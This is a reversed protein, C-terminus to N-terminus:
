PEKKQPPGARPDPLAPLATLSRRAAASFRGTPFRRLYETLDARAGAPDGGQARCSSSGYLGRELLEGQVQGIAATFDTLAEACRGAEARLEGRTVRLEMGRPTDDALPRQDLATLAERRKGVGLLANIRLLEAEPQLLGHPFQQRYSDLLTLAGAPDHAQRLRAMAAGLAQSEKLIAEESVQVQAQAQAQAEPEPPAPKAPPAVVRKVAAGTPARSGPDPGPLPRPRPRPGAGAGTPSLSRLPATVPAPVIPKETPRDKDPASPLAPVAAPAEIARVGAATVEVGLPPLPANGPSELRALWAAVRQLRGVPLAVLGAATAATGASLLVEQEKGAWRVVAQGLYSAILTPRGHASVVEVLAHLPVTLRAQAEDIITPADTTRILLAGALLRTPVGGSGPIVQGPGLLALQAAAVPGAVPRPLQAPRLRSYGLAGALLGVALVLATQVLSWRLLVPAIPAARVSEALRARVRVLQTASPTPRLVQSLLKAAPEDPSDEAWRRKIPDNDAM